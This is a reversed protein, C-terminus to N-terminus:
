GRVCRLPRLCCWWLGCGVELFARVNDVLQRMTLTPDWNELRLLPHSSLAGPLPLALHPRVVELAPPYFPHLGRLFTVRLQISSVAFKSSV